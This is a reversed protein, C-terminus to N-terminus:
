HISQVTAKFTVQQSLEVSMLLQFLQLVHLWGCLSATGREDTRKHKGLMRSCSSDSSNLLVYAMCKQEAAAAFAQAVHQM